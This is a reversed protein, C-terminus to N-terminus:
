PVHLRQGILDCAESLGVSDDSQGVSAQSTRSQRRAPRRERGNPWHVAVAGGGSGDTVDCPQLSHGGYARAPLESSLATAWDCVFHWLRLYRCVWVAASTALRTFEDYFWCPLQLKCHFSFHDPSISMTSFLDVRFCMKVGELMAFHLRLGHSTSIAASTM